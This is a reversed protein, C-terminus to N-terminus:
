INYLNKRRSLTESFFDADWATNKRKCVVYVNIKLNGFNKLSENVNGKKKKETHMPVFPRKDTGDFRSM